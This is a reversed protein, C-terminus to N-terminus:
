ALTMRWALSLVCPALFFNYHLYLPMFRDNTYEYHIHLATIIGTRGDYTFRGQEHIHERNWRTRPEIWFHLFFPSIGCTSNNTLFASISPLSSWAYFTETQFKDIKPTFNIKKTPGKKRAETFRIHLMSVGQKMSRLDASLQVYVDCLPRATVPSQLFQSTLASIRNLTPMFSHMENCMVATQMTSLFLGLLRKQGLPRLADAM